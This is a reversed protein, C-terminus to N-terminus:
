RQCTNTLHCHGSLSKDIVSVGVKVKLESSDLQVEFVPQLLHKIDAIPSIHFDSSWLTLPEWSLLPTNPGSQWYSSSNFNQEELASKLAIRMRFCNNEVNEGEFYGNVVVSSSSIRNLYTKSSIEKERDVRHSYLTAAFSQNDEDNKDYKMGMLLLLVIFGFIAAVFFIAAFNKYTKM